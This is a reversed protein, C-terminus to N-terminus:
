GDPLTTPPPLRLAMGGLVIRRTERAVTTHPVTRSPTLHRTPATGTLVYTTPEHPTWAIAPTRSHHTTSTHHAREHDPLSSGGRCTTHTHPAARLTHHTHPFALPPTPHRGM